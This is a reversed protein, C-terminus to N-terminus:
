KLKKQSADEFSSTWVFKGLLSIFDELRCDSLQQEEQECLLKWAFLGRENWEPVQKWEQTSLTESIKINFLLQIPLLMTQHEDLHLKCNSVFWLHLFQPKLSTGVM